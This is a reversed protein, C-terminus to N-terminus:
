SRSSVHSGINQGRYIKCIQIEYCFLVPHEPEDEDDWEFRFMVFGILEEDVENASTPSSISPTNTLIADCNVSSPRKYACLFRSNPHFLEKKKEVERWGWNLEYWPKMNSELLNFIATQDSKSLDESRKSKILPANRDQRLNCASMHDTCKQSASLLVVMDFNGDDSSTADAMTGGGKIAQTLSNRRLNLLDAAHNSDGRFREPSILKTKSCGRCLFYGVYCLHIVFM